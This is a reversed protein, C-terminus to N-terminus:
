RGRRMPSSVVALEHAGIDAAIGQPRVRDDFDLVADPQVAVRDIALIASSVLHLDGNFPDVFLDPTANTANGILVAGAGARSRIDADVLNNAILANTTGVFRYEIANPYTGSLLVTNHLVETDPSDAVM